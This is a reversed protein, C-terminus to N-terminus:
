TPRFAGLGAFIGDIPSKLPAIQARVLMRLQEQYLDSLEQRDLSAILHDKSYAVFAPQGSDKGWVEGAWWRCINDLFEEQYQQESHQFLYLVALYVKELEDFLQSTTQYLSFGNLKSRIEADDLDFGYLFVLLSNMYQDLDGPLDVRSWVTQAQEPKLQDQFLDLLKSHYAHGLNECLQEQNEALFYEENLRVESRVYEQEEDPTFPDFSLKQQQQERYERQLIDLLSQSNDAPNPDAPSPPKAPGADEPEPSPEPQGPDPVCNKRVATAPPRRFDDLNLTLLNSIDSAFDFVDQAYTFGYLDGSTGSEKTYTYISKFLTLLDYTTQIDLEALTTKEDPLCINQPLQSPFAMLMSNRKNDASVKGRDVRLINTTIDEKCNLMALGDWTTTRIRQANHAEYTSKMRETLLCIMCTNLFLQPPVRFSLVNVRNNGSEDAGVSLSPLKKLMWRAAPSDWLSSDPSAPKDGTPRFHSNYIKAIIQGHWQELLRERQRCQSAKAPHWSLLETVTANPTQLIDEAEPFPSLYILMHKWHGQQSSRSSFVAYHQGRLMVNSITTSRRIADLNTEDICPLFLTEEWLRSFEAGLKHSNTLDLHHVLTCIGQNLHEWSCPVQEKACSDRASPRCSNAYFFCLACLFMVQHVDTLQSRFTDLRDKALPADKEGAEKLAKQLKGALSKLLKDTLNKKLRPEVEDEFARRLQGIIDASTDPKDNHGYQARNEGSDQLPAFFVSQWFVSWAQHELVGNDQEINPLPLLSFYSFATDPFSELHKKFKKIFSSVGLPRQGDKTHRSLVQECVKPFAELCISRNEAMVALNAENIRRLILDFTRQIQPFIDDTLKQVGQANLGDRSMQLHEQLQDNQLDISDFLDNEVCAIEAVFLGKIFLRVGRRRQAGSEDPGNPQLIRRANCRFFCGAHQSWGYLMGGKVDFSYASGDPLQGFRYVPPVKEPTEFLWCRIEKAENRELHQVNPSIPQWASEGSSRAARIRLKERLAALSGLSPDLIQERTIIPFLREGILSTFSEELQVMLEISRRLKRYKAYDEQYPDMGLWGTMDENHSVKYHEPVFVSFCTGYPIDDQGARWVPRPIINIYGEARDGSHFTMEYCEARRTRTVCTFRDCVLFLSQLGIGFHGTPKLWEPMHSIQELRHEHSSGVQSIHHIDEGSIGIGCDQVKVEVGFEYERLLQGLPMAFDAGVIDSLQGASDLRRKKVAMDVHIPYKKFPLTQNAECLGLTERKDFESASYDTFYQLKVADIANQLLERLFPFKLDYLNAGSLLRFAKKQSLEFKTTVLDPPISAGNLSVQELEVVPLCGQFNDPAISAWHYSCNKLFGGLWDLEQCLLRLEEPSSCDAEIHIRKPSIRLSRIAQHKRYHAQSSAPFLDNEGAVDQIFPNFRNNDLDLIDGLSLLVAIFLPHYTDQAFGGDYQPLTRLLTNFDSEGHARACAAAQLFIRIPIGTMLLGSQLKAPDKIWEELRRASIDAHQKRQYEALLLVMSRYIDYQPQYEPEQAEALTSWKEFTEAAWHMSPDPSKRLNEVFRRFDDSKVAGQRDASTSVMGIDHLYVATLLAFCDSASLRRIEEEGLLCEINHIVAECHSANHRSYMPATLVTYDLLQSFWRRDQQWSTWLVQHRETSQPSMAYSRLQQEITWPMQPSYAPRGTSPGPVYGYEPPFIHDM